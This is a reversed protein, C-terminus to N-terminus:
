RSKRDLVSIKADAKSISRGLASKAAEARVVLNELRDLAENLEDLFQRAAVEGMSEVLEPDAQIDVERRARWFGM